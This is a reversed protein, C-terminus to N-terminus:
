LEPHRGMQHPVHHNGKGCHHSRQEREKPGKVNKEKQTEDCPHLQVGSNNTGKKKVKGM